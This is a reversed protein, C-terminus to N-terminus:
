PHHDILNKGVRRRGVAVGIAAPRHVSPIFEDLDHVVGPRLNVKAAVDQAVARHAVPMDERRTRDHLVLAPDNDKRTRRLGDAIKSAAQNLSGGGTRERQILRSVTDVQEIGGQDHHRANGKAGLRVIRLRDRPIRVDRPPRRQHHM